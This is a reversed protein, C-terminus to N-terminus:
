RIILMNGCLKFEWWGWAFNYYLSLFHGITYFGFPCLILKSQEKEQYSETAWSCSLRYRFIQHQRYLHFFLVKNKKGQYCPFTCVPTFLTEGSDTHEKKTQLKMYRRRSERQHSDVRKKSQLFGYPRRSNLNKLSKETNGGVTDQRDILPDLPPVGVVVVVAHQTRQYPLQSATTPIAARSRYSWAGHVWM